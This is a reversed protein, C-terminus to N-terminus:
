NGTKNKELFQQWKMSLYFNEGYYSLVKQLHDAITFYNLLDIRNQKEDFIILSPLQFGGGTLEDIVPHFPSAQSKANFIKGKWSLPSRTEVDLYILYFHENILRSVATDTFVALQMARCSICWNSYLFVLTKKTTDKKLGAYQEMSVSAPPPLSPNERFALQFTKNFQEFPLYRFINEVVYVVLPEMDKVEMYGPANLQQFDSTIFVTTPYSPRNGLMRLAFDHTARPGTGKNVFMTDRYFITDKTEANFKVPYFWQNIYAAFDPNSYTTMMMRKCWGCWDTYFDILLPKAFKKQAKQAEELTMWKVASQPEEHIQLPQAYVRNIMFLLVILRKM